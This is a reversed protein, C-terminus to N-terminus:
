KEVSGSKALALIDEFVEEWAEGDFDILNFSKLFFVGESALFALRANRARTSSLDLGDLRSNYWERSEAVQDPEQLLATMMVASRSAEDNDDRRSAEIHGLIVTEPNSDEGAFAMVEEEFTDGWRRIMARILNEKSGFAYQVGGKTIGAERAVADITLGAAGARTVVAEAADLVKDRDITRPRGAM